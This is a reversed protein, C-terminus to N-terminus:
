GTAALRTEKSPKPRRRRAEGSRVLAVRYGLTEAAKELKEVSLHARKNLVRSLFAENLGADKAFRYRSGRSKAILESLDDRYDRKRFYGQAIGVRSAIDQCVAYVPLRVLDRGSLHRRTALLERRWGSSLEPWALGRNARALVSQVLRREKRDLTSLDWERGALDEYPERSKLDIAFRTM